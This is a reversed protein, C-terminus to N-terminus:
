RKVEARVNRYFDQYDPHLLVSIGESFNGDRGRANMRGPDLNYNERFANMVATAQRAALSLDGTMSLGEVTLGLEPYANILDAIGKLWADAGETIEVGTDSGFLAELTGTVVLSGSAVKLNADPGLTSKADTLLAIIISDNRSFTDVINRLEAEKNQLSALAQNLASNNKNSVQAFSNLNTLLTANAAKLENVQAEYSEAKTLSAKENQRATQVAAESESLRLELTDIRAMLESRRQGSLSTLGLLAVLLVLIGNRRSTFSTM